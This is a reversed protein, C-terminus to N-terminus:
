RCVERLLMGFWFAAVAAMALFVISVCAAYLRFALYRMPDQEGQMKLEVFTRVEFGAERVYRALIGTGLNEDLVFIPPM